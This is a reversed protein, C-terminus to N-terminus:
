VDQPEIARILPFRAFDGTNFTVLNPVGHVRMSAAIKADHVQVGAIKLDVVLRRWENFTALNDPLLEFHRHILRAKQDVTEVSIELGGRASRPRTCVNWFEAMVQPTYCLREGSQRLKRIADLVAERMPSHPEALRLFTNTDFLYPM